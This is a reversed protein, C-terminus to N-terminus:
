ITLKIKSKKENDDFCSSQKSTFIEHQNAKQQKKQSLEKTLSRFKKWFNSMYWTGQKCWKELGNGAAKNFFTKLFKAEKKKKKKTLVTTALLLVM